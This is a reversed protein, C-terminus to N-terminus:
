RLKSLDAHEFQFIMIQQQGLSWKVFCSSPVFARRWGSTGTKALASTRASVEGQAMSETWAAARVLVFQFLFCCFDFLFFLRAVGFSSYCVRCCWFSIAACLAFRSCCYYYYYYFYLRLQLSFFCYCRCRRCCCYRCYCHAENAVYLCVWCLVCRIVFLSVFLFLEYESNTCTYKSETNTYYIRRRTRCAAVATHIKVGCVGCMFSRLLSSTFYFFFFFFHAIIKKGAIPYLMTILSDYLCDERQYREQHVHAKIVWRLSHFNLM